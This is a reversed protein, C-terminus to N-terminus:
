KGKKFTPESETKTDVKVTDMKPEVAVPKPTLEKIAKTIEEKAVARAIEYIQGIDEQHMENGGYFIPRAM